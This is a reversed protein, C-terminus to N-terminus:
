KGLMVVAMVAFHDSAFRGGWTQSITAHQLVQWKGKMFIYDIPAEDKEKPGILFQDGDKVIAIGDDYFWVNNQIFGKNYADDFDSDRAIKPSNAFRRIDLGQNEEIPIVREPTPAM